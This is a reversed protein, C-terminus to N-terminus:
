GRHPFERGTIRKFTEYVSREKTTLEEIKKEYEYVDARGSELANKITKQLQKRDAEIMKLESRAWKELSKQDM